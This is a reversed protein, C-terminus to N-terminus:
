NSVAIPIEYSTIVNSWASMKYTGLYETPDTFPYSVIFVNLLHTGESNLTIKPSIIASKGLDIQYLEYYKENLGSYNLPYLDGDLFTFIAFSQKIGSNEDKLYKDYFPSGKISEKIDVYITLTKEEGIKVDEIKRIVNNYDWINKINKDYPKELLFFYYGLSEDITLINSSYLTNKNNKTSKIFTFRKCYSNQQSMEELSNNNRLLILECDNLGEVIEDTTIHISTRIYSNNSTKPFFLEHKDQKNGGNISYNVLKFNNLLLVDFTTDQNSSVDIIFEGEFSSSNVDLTKQVTDNKGDSFTIGITLQTKNNSNHSVKLINIGGSIFFITGSIIVLIIIM